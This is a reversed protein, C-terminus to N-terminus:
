AFVMEDTCYSNGFTMSSARLRVQPAALVFPPPVHHAHAHLAGGRVVTLDAVDGGGGGLVHGHVDGALDPTTVGSVAM